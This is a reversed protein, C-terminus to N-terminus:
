LVIREWNERNRENVRYRIQENSQQQTHIDKSVTRTTHPRSLISSPTSAGQPKDIMPKYPAKLM